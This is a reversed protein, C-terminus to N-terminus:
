KGIQKVVLRTACRVIPGLPQEALTDKRLDYSLEVRTYACPLIKALRGIRGIDAMIM